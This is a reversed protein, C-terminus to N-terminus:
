SGLLGDSGNKGNRQQEAESPNGWLFASAAPAVTPEGSVGQDEAVRPQWSPEPLEARGELSKKRRVKRFRTETRILRGRALAIAAVLLALIGIAGALELATESGSSRAKARTGPPPLDPM